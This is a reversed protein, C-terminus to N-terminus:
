TRALRFRYLLHALTIAVAGMAAYLGITTTTARGYFGAFDLLPNAGNDNVVVYWFTLFGVIFTKPNATTVGLATATSVIFFIGCILAAAALPGHAVTRFLPM